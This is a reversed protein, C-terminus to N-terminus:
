CGHVSIFTLHSIERGAAAKEPGGLQNGDAARRRARVPDMLEDYDPISRETRVMSRGAWDTRFSGPPTM